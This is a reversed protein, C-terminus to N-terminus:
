LDQAKHSYLLNARSIDMQRSLSKAGAFPYIDIKKNMEGKFVVM